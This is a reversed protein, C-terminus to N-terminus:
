PTPGPAATTDRDMSTLWAVAEGRDLFVRIFNGRNQHVTESPVAFERAENTDPLAVAVIRSRVEPPTEEASRIMSALSVDFSFDTTYDLLVLRAPQGRLHEMQARHLPLVDRDGIRGTVKIALLNGTVASNVVFPM